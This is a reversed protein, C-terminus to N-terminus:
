DALRAQRVAVYAQADLPEKVCHLTHRYGFDSVSDSVKKRYWIKGIGTGLSKGIAIKELVLESVM